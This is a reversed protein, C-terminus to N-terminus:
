VQMAPASAVREWFKEAEAQWIRRLDSFPTHFTYGVLANAAEVLPITMEIVAREDGYVAERADGQYPRDPATSHALYLDRAAKLARLEESEEASALGASWVALQRDDFARDFKALEQQLGPRKLLTELSWLSAVDRRRDWIRLLTVITNRHLADSIVNFPPHAKAVNISDLLRRDRATSVFVEYCGIAAELDKSISRATRTAKASQTM